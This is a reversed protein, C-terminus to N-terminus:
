ERANAAAADRLRELEDARLDPLHRFRQLDLHQELLPRLADPAQIHVEFALPTGPDDDPGADNARPWLSCGTLVLCFFLM